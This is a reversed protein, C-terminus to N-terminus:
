VIEAGMLVIKRLFRRAVESVFLKKLNKHNFIGGKKKFDFSRILLIVQITNFTIKM